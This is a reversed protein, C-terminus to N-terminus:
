ILPTCGLGYTDISCIGKKIKFFGNIGWSTGWSNAVLWYQTGTAKDYGWGLTKTAHFGEFSGGAHDYIGDKYYFFDSYVAFVNELPGNNYLENMKANNDAANFLTGMKCKYKTLSGTGTCVYPCPPVSGQGSVYPMCSDSVIGTTTVYNWSHEVTGGNCGYDNKDCSLFDQPSLIVDKNLICFRDSLVESLAFAWCSGCKAQDRIPHICSGFKERPDFDDPLNTVFPLIHFTNPPTFKVKLISKLEDETWGKFINSEYEQVKWAVISQLKEGFEKTIGPKLSVTFSILFLFYLTKM